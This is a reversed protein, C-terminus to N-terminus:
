KKSKLKKKFNWGHLINQKAGEMPYIVMLKLLMHRDKHAHHLTREKLRTGLFIAIILRLIGSILFILPIGIMFLNHELSYIAILSGIMAGFFTALGTFLNYNSVYGSREELSSSSLLHNYIAINFAGWIFGEFIRIFILYYFNQSVLWLLPIFSILLASSSLVIKNGYRDTIKGWYKMSIIQALSVTCILIMYELYTFNLDRLIFLTFFPAAIMVAFKFFSVFNIFSHIQKHKKEKLFKNPFIVKTKKADYNTPPILKLNFVTYTRAIFAIIFIIIFGYLTGSNEFFGLILGAIITSVMAFLLAISRKLGIYKGITKKDVYEGFWSMWPANIFWEVSTQIIVLIILVWIAIAPDLILVLLLPLWSIAHILVGTLVIKRRKGTKKMIYPSFVQFISGFLVPLSALLGMLFEGAGLFVALAGIYNDGFGTTIQRAGAEYLFKKRAKERTNKNKSTNKYGKM